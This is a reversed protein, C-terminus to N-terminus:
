NIGNVILVIATKLGLNGVQHMLRSVITWWREYVRSMLEGDKHDYYHLLYYVVM